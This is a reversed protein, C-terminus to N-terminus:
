EAVGRAWGGDVDIDGNIGFDIGKEKKCVGFRIGTNKRREERFSPLNSSSPSSSSYLLLRFFIECPPSQTPVRYISRLFLSLPLTQTPPSWRNIHCNLPPIRPVIKPNNALIPPVITLACNASQLPPSPPYTSTFNCIYGKESHILNIARAINPQRPNERAGTYM